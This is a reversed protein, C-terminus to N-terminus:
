TLYKFVDNNNGDFHGTYEHTTNNGIPVWTNDTCIIENKLIAYANTRGGNVINAFEKLQAYNSIEYPSDSTGEGVMIVNENAHATTIGLDLGAFNSVVLALALMVCMIVKFIKKNNM